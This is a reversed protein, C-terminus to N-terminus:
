NIIMEEEEEELILEPLEMPFLIRHPCPTPPTVFENNEYEDRSRKLWPVPTRGPSPPSSIMIPSEFDFILEIEPPSYTTSSMSDISMPSSQPTEPSFTFQNWPSLRFREALSNTSSADSDTFGPTWPTNM